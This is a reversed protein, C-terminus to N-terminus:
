PSQNGNLYMYIVTKGSSSLLGRVVPKNWLILPSESFGLSEFHPYPAWVPPTLTVMEPYMDMADLPYWSVWKKGVVLFLCNM